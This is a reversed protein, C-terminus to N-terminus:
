KWNIKFEEYPDNRFLCETHKIKVKKSGLMLEALKTFYGEHYICILPHYKHFDKIKIIGYKEKTSFGIVEMEGFDFNKQWYDPIKAFSKEIDLFHQMLIKVVFSYKPSQYAMEFVNKDEWKFIEAAALIILCALAESYWKVNVVDGAKFPYGLEELRREVTRVGDEGKLDRIYAFHGEIIVGRVNGGLKMIEEVEKKNLSVM